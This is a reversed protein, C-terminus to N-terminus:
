ILSASLFEWKLVVPFSQPQPLKILHKKLLFEMEQRRLKMESDYMLFPNQLATRLEDNVISGAMNEYKGWVAGISLIWIGAPCNEPLVKVTEIYREEKSKQAEFGAAIWARSDVGFAPKNPVIDLLTIRDFGMRILGEIQKRTDDAKNKSLKKLRCKVEIAVLYNTPPPWEIGGSEALELAAFYAHNDPHWDPNSKAKAKVLAEFDKPERWKLSGALIDVDGPKEKRIKQQPELYHRDVRLLYWSFAPVLGLSRFLDNSILVNNVIIEIAEEERGNTLETLYKGQM